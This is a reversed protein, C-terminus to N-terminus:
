RHGRQNETEKNMIPPSQAVDIKLYKLEGILRWIRNM